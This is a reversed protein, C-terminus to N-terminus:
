FLEYILFIYKNVYAVYAHAKIKLFIDFPFNIIKEM